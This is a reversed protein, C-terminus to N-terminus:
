LILYAFFAEKITKDLQADLEDLMKRTMEHWVQEREALTLDEPM